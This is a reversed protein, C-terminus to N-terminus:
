KGLALVLEGESNIYDGTLPNYRGTLFPPQLGSIIRKFLNRRPKEKVVTVDPNKVTQVLWTGIQEATPEISVAQDAKRTQLKLGEESSNVYARIRNYTIRKDLHRMRYDWRLEVGVGEQSDEGRAPTIVVKADGWYCGTIAAANKFADLAPTSKLYDLELQSRGRPSVECIQRVAWGTLRRRDDELM